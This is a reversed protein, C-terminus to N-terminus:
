GKTVTLMLVIFMYPGPIGLTIKMQWRFTHHLIPSADVPHGKICGCERMVVLDYEAFNFFLFQSSHEGDIDSIWWGQVGGSFTNPGLFVYESRSTFAPHRPCISFWVILNWGRWFRGGWPSRTAVMTKRQRLRPPISRESGRWLITSRLHINKARTIPLADPSHLTCFLFMIYIFIDLPISVM